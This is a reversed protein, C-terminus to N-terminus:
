EDYDFVVIDSSSQLVREVFVTHAPHVEYRELSPQDNFRALISVYYREGRGKRNYAVEYSCIEPIQPPLNRLMEVCAAIEAEPTEPQFQFLVIRRIM